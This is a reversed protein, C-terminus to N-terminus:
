VIKVTLNYRDILQTVRDPRVFIATACADAIRASAAQVFVGSPIDTPTNRASVIHQRDVDGDSWTRKGQSSAAFGGLIKVTGISQTPERPDELAITVPEDAAIYMDGGGNIVFSEVDHSVFLTAIADILWGKGLGGIDIIAGAPITIKSRSIHTRSWFAQGTITSAHTRSGYGQAHLIGGVSVDFGGDSLEYLEKSFSLMDVLEPPPSHLVGTRALDIILSDERFRSYLRDFRDVEAIVAVQLDSPIPHSLSECWWHTGIGDFEYLTSSQLM